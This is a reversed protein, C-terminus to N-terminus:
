AKFSALFINGLGNMAIAKNKAYQENRNALELAKYHYESAELNSSTRRLDTGINNLALIQGLTDNIEEALQFAEFHYTLADKFQAHDRFDTGQNNLDLVKKVLSDRKVNDTIIRKWKLETEDYYFHSATKENAVILDEKLNSVEDKSQCAVLLVFVVWVFYLPKRLLPLLKLYDLMFVLTIDGIIL